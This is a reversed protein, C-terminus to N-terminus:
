YEKPSLDAFKNLEMQYDSGDESNHKNVVELNKAFNSLRVQYEGKDRYNRQFKSIFNSFLKETQAADVKNKIQIANTSAVGFLALVAVITSFKM